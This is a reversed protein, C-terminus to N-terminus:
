IWEFRADKAALIIFSNWNNIFFYHIFGENSDAIWLSGAEQYPYRSDPREIMCFQLGSVMLRGDRKKERLEEDSSELDGIWVSVEVKVEGKAYDIEIKRLNADHFGNPLTEEIEEITM